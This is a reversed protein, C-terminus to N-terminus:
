RYPRCEDSTCRIEKVAAVFNGETGDESYLIARWARAHGDIEVVDWLNVSIGEFRLDYAVLVEALEPPTSSM